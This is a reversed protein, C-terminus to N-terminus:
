EIEFLCEVRTGGKRRKRISLNAGIARARYEMTHLGLGMGSSETVDFGQGNDLVRLVGKGDKAKKIELTLSTGGSHRLANNVAEQAIRFVHNAAIPDAITMEGDKVKLRCKLPSGARVSDALNKLASHLANPQDSIGHLGHSLARTQNIADNISNVIRDTDRADVKKGRRLNASLAGALYGIGTLLSGM